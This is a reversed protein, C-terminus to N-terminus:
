TNLSLTYLFSSLEKKRGKRLALVSMGPEIEKLEGDVILNTKLPKVKIEYIEGLKEDKISDNAIHILKGDIKGYKQFNFADIKISVNQNLKLFGIDKNLM